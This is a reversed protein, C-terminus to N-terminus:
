HQGGQRAALLATITGTDTFALNGDIGTGIRIRPKIDPGHFDSGGTPILHYRKALSLYFTTQQPTHSPYFCEIGAVGQGALRCVLATTAEEDLHLKGPHALVAAGGAAHIVAIAAEASPKPREIADFEPTALYREFAERVSAVYGEEVLARAVHVRGIVGDGRKERRGLNLSIGRSRLMGLIREERERRLLAFEDCMRLLGADGANIGYGLLHLGREGALSLEIGPVFAIGAQQAAKEAAALGDVTDHDTLALQVIGAAAALRPLEEPPYQGDSCASHTHLDVLPAGDAM